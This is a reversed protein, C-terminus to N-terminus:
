LKGVGNKYFSAWSEVYNTHDYVYTKRSPYIGSMHYIFQEKETMEKIPITFEKLSLDSYWWWTASDDEGTLLYTGRDSAIEEAIHAIVLVDGIKFGRLENEVLSIFKDGRNYKYKM